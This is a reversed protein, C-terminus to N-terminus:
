IPLDDPGAVNVESARAGVPAPLPAGYPSQAPYQGQLQQPHPYGRQPQPYPTPYQQGQPYQGQPLPAGQGQPQSYSSQQQLPQGRQASYQGQGQGQQEDKKKADLFFFELVGVNASKTMQGDQKRQYERITLKGLISIHSGKSLKAKGIRDCVQGNAVCDYFSVIDQGSYKENVAFGFTCYQGHESQQFEPDATIRGEMNIIAYGM